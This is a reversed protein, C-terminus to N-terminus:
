RIGVRMDLHVDDFFGGQYLISGDLNVIRVRDRLIPSLRHPLDPFGNQTQEVILQLTRTLRSQTQFRANSFDVALFALGNILLLVFVFATFQLAIRYSIRQFIM